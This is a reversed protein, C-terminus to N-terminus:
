RWVAGGWGEKAHARIHQDLSELGSCPAYFGEVGGPPDSHFEGQDNTDDVDMPTSGFLLVRPTPVSAQANFYRWHDQCAVPASPTLPAQPPVPAPTSFVPAACPTTVPVPVPMMPPSYLAPTQPALPAAPSFQPSPPASLPSQQPVACAWQVTPKPAVPTVMGSAAEFRQRLQLYKTCFECQRPQAANPCTVVHEKLKGILQKAVQCELNRCGQCQAAHVLVHAQVCWYYADFMYILCPTRSLPRTRMFCPSADTSLDGDASAPDAGDEGRARGPENAYRQLERNEQHTLAGHRTRALHSCLWENWIDRPSGLM